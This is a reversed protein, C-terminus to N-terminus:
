QTGTTTNKKQQQQQLTKIQIYFRRNVCVDSVLGLRCGASMMAHLDLTQGFVHAWPLISLGTDDRSLRHGFIERSARVNSAINRHSLMVGKPNGTTGSTYILVCIDDPSPVHCSHTRSIENSDNREMNAGQELVREFDGNEFCITNENPILSLNRVRDHISNTSAFLYKAGSDKIIYEWDEDRQQEYM